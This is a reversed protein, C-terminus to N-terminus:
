SLFKRPDTIEGTIASAAVTAASALYIQADFSGMRGPENRTGTSICVERGSIFAQIGSCGTCSPTSVMAQASAFVEILGEKLAKLFIDRSGPIIIMRVSPHIKRGQLIRATMRLDEMRGSACSGIFAQNVRINKVSSIPVVNDPCPPLAVQPELESVSLSYKQEYVADPDSKLPHFALPGIGKFYKLVEQSPSIIGTKAGIEITLNCLTMRQDIDMEEVADGCFEIVRYNAREEGIHGIVYQAIDRSMVGVGPKGSLIVQISHPVKIWIKGLAMVMPMEANVPISLAGVGGLTTCHTDGGIILMGPQVLGREVPFQHAIGERGTDFFHKIDFEKVFERIERNLDARVQSQPLPYHDIALIFKERDWVRSVGLSRLQTFYQSVAVEPCTVLDPIVWLIEGENINEKNAARSIIKKAITSGM